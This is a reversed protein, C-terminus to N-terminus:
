AIFVFAPSVLHDGESMQQSIDDSLCVQFRLGSAQPRPEMVQPVRKDDVPHQGPIAGPDIRLGAEMVERGIEAM